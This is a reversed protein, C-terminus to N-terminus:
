NVSALRIGRDPACTTFVLASRSCKWETAGGDSLLVPTTTGTPLLTAAGLLAAIALLLSLRKM